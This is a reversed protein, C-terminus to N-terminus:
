MDLADYLCQGKLLGEVHSTIKTRFEDLVPHLRKSFTPPSPQSHHRGAGGQAVQVARLRQQLKAEMRTLDPAPMHPALQARVAEESLARQLLGRLQGQLEYLTNLLFTVQRGDNYTLHIDTRRQTYFFM